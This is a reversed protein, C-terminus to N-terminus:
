RAALADVRDTLARVDARIETVASALDPFADSGTPVTVGTVHMAALLVRAPPASKGKAWSSVASDTYPGGGPARIGAGALAEALAGNSGARRRARDITDSVQADWDM